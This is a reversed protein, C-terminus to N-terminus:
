ILMVLCGAASLYDGVISSVIAIGIQFSNFVHRIIMGELQIAFANYRKIDGKDQKLYPLLIVVLGVLAIFACNWWQYKGRIINPSLGGIYTVFMLTAVYISTRDLLWLYLNQLNSIIWNDLKLYTKWM